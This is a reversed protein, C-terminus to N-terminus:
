FHIRRIAPRDNSHRDPHVEHHDEENLVAVRDDDWSGDNREGCFRTLCSCKYM